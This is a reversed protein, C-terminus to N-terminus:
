LWVGDRRALRPGKHHAPPGLIGGPAKDAPLRGCRVPRTWPPRTPPFRARM